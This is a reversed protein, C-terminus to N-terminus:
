GVWAVMSTETSRDIHGFVVVEGRWGGGGFLNREEEERLSERWSSEGGGDGMMDVEEEGEEGIEEEDVKGIGMGVEMVGGPEGGEGVM